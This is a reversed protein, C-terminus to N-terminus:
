DCWPQRSWMQVEIGGKRIVFRVAGEAATHLVHAGVGAYAAAVAADKDGPGGSVIAWDPKSWAAFGPPNSSDSGHHPVLVIDCDVPEEAM